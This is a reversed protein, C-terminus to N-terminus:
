NKVCKREIKYIIYGKQVFAVLTGIGAQQFELFHLIQM